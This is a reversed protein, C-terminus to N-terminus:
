EVSVITVDFTLTKGALPHNFDLIISNQTVDKIKVPMVEGNAAQMQIYMGPQPDLEAPLSSKPIERFASPNIEGYAEAPAVIFTRKDGVKLGLMQKDLGPIIQGSGQTYSLPGRGQSSDLIQGDVTLTYDFSVKAGNTIVKGEAAKVGCTILGSILILSAIMGLKKMKIVEHKKGM